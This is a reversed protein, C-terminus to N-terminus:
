SVTDLIVSDKGVASGDARVTVVTAYARSASGALAVVALQVAGLMLIPWGAGAVVSLAMAYRPPRASESLEGAIVALVLTAIVWGALYGCLTTFTLLTTM